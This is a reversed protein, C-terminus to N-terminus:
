NEVEKPMFRREWEFASCVLVDATPKNDDKCKYGQNLIIFDRCHLCCEANSRRTM